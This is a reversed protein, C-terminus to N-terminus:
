GQREVVSSKRAVRCLEPREAGAVGIACRGRFGAQQVRQMRLQCLGPLEEPLESLAPAAWGPRVPGAALDATKRQIEWFKCRALNRLGRFDQVKSGEAFSIVAPHSATKQSNGSNEDGCTLKTETM